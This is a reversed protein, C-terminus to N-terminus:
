VNKGNRKCIMNDSKQQQQMKPHWWRRIVANTWKENSKATRSSFWFTIADISIWEISILLFNLAATSQLPQNTTSVILVRYPLIPSRTRTVTASISHFVNTISHYKKIRCSFILLNGSVVFFNFKIKWNGGRLRIENMLLNHLSHVRYVPLLWPNKENETQFFTVVSFFFECGFLSFSFIDYHKDM